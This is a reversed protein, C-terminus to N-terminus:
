LRYVTENECGILQLFPISFLKALTVLRNICFTLSSPKLIEFKKLFSPFLDAFHNGPPITGSFLGTSDSSLPICGCDVFPCTHVIEVVHLFHNDITNYGKLDLLNQPTLSSFQKCSQNRASLLIPCLKCESFATVLQKRQFKHKKAVKDEFSCSQEAQPIVNLSYLNYLEIDGAALGSTQSSM